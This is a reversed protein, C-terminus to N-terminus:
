VVLDEEHGCELSFVTRGLTCRRPRQRRFSQSLVWAEWKWIVFNNRWLDLLDLFNFSYDVEFRDDVLVVGDEDGAEFDGKEM